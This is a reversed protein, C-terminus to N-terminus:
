KKGEMYCKPCYDTQGEKLYPCEGIVCGSLEFPPLTRAVISEIAPLNDPIGDFKDALAKIEAITPFFFKTNIHAKVAEVVSEKKYDKFFTSWMDLMMKPDSIQKMANPYAIKLTELVAKVEERTM